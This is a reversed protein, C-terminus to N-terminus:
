KSSFKSIFEKIEPDRYHEKLAFLFINKKMPKVLGDTAYNVGALFDLVRESQEKPCDNFDLCLIGGEMLKDALKFTHTDDEVKIFDIKNRISEGKQAM